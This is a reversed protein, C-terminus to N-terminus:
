RAGAATEPDAQGFIHWLMEEAKRHEHATREPYIAGAIGHCVWAKEGNPLAFLELEYAPNEHCVKCCAAKLHKFDDCIRIETEPLRNQLEFNIMSERNADREESARLDRLTKEIIESKKM